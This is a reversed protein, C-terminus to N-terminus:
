EAGLPPAIPFFPRLNEPSVIAKTDRMCPLFLARTANRPEVSMHLHTRGVWWGGLAGCGGRSRGGVGVGRGGRGAREYKFLCVCVCVFVRASVCMCVSVGVGGKEKRKGKGKRKGEEEGEEEGGRGRRKGEHLSPATPEVSYAM